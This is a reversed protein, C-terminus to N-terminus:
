RGGLGYKEAVQTQLARIEKIRRALRREFIINRLGAYFWLLSIILSVGGVAM